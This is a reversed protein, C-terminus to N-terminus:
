AVQSQYTDIGSVMCWALNLLASGVEWKWSQLGYQLLSVTFCLIYLVGSSVVLVHHDNIM